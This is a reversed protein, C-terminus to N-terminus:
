SFAVLFWILTAAREGQMQLELAVTLRASLAEPFQPQDLHASVTFILLGQGAQGAKKVRM